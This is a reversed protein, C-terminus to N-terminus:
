LSAPTFPTHLPPPRFIASPLTIQQFQLQINVRKIEVGKLYLNHCNIRSLSFKFKFQKNLLLVITPFFTVSEQSINQFMMINHNVSDFAKSLDFILFSTCFFHIGQIYGVSEICSQKKKKITFIKRQKLSIRKLRLLLLSNRQHHKKHM